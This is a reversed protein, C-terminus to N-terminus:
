RAQLLDTDSSRFSTYREFAGSEENITRAYIDSHCDETESYYYLAIDTTKKCEM